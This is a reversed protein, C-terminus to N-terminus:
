DVNGRLSRCATKAKTGLDNVTEIWTGAYPVVKERKGYIEDLETEIWTGAYPVVFRRCPLLTPLLRKLGRERTPFSQCLEHRETHWLTEIWTGAYPVVAIPVPKHCCKHRKLGRERTPFSPAQLGSAPCYYQKLGRERTPFSVLKTCIM